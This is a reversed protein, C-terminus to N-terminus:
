LESHKRSPSGGAKPPSYAQTDEPTPLQVPGARLQSGRHRSNPPSPAQMLLCGSKEGGRCAGAALSLGRGATQPRAGGEDEGQGTPPLARTCPQAQVQGRGLPIHGLRSRGRKSEWPQQSQSHGQPAASSKMRKFAACRSGFLVSFQPPPPPLPFIGGM